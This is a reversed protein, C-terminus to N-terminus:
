FKLFLLIISGDFVDAVGYLLTRGWFFGIHRRLIRFYDTKLMGVPNESTPGNDSATACMDVPIAM